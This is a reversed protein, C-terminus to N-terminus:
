GNVTTHGNVHRALGRGWSQAHAPRGTGVGSASQATPQWQQKRSASACVPSTCLPLPARRRAATPLSVDPCGTVITNSPLLSPQAVWLLLLPLLLLLLLLLLWQNPASPAQSRLANGAARMVIRLRASGLARESSM